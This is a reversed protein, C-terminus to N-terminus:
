IATGEMDIPQYPDYQDISFHQWRFDFFNEISPDIKVVPFPRPDRSLIEDVQDTHRTYYHANSIQYVLERPRYGTVRGVMAMLASYHIMNFPLGVPTDASRQWHVLDFEHNDIDMNFHLLGHCPVVVVKQTRGEIRAMHYPIFPTIIHSRLEPREKIQQLIVAFQNFADESESNAVPFDHFAVGYSGPGLDNPELGRKATKEPTVWKDWFKCGFAELEKLTRAGNVFGLIEGLGQRAGYQFKREGTNPVWLPIKEKASSSSLDRETIMPFGNELDFRMQHGIIEVSPEDMGSSALRGRTRIRDLLEHYQWDPTRQEKYCFPDIFGQAEEM